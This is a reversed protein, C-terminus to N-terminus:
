VLPYTTLGIARTRTLSPECKLKRLEPPLNMEEEANLEEPPEGMYALKLYSERTIPIHPPERARKKFFYEFNNLRLEHSLTLQLDTRRSASIRPLM